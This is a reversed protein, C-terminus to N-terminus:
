EIGDLLKVVDACIQNGRFYVVPLKVTITGLVVDTPDVVIGDHKNQVKDARWSVSIISGGEANGLLGVNGTAFAPRSVLCNNELDWKSSGWEVIGANEAGTTNTIPASSGETEQLPGVSKGCFM